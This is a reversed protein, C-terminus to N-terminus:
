TEMARHTHYILFIGMKMLKKKMKFKIKIQHTQQMPFKEKIENKKPRRMTLIRKFELMDHHKIAKKPAEM